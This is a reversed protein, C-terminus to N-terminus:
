ARNFPGRHQAIRNIDARSEIGFRTAFEGVTLHEICIDVVAKGFKRGVQMFVEAGWMQRAIAHGRGSLLQQEPAAAFLAAVQEEKALRKALAKSTREADRAAVRAATASARKAKAIRRATFIARHKARIGNRYAVHDPTDIADFDFTPIPGCSWEWQEVGKLAAVNAARDSNFVSASYAADLISTHVSIHVCFSKKGAIKREEANLVATAVFEGRETFRHEPPQAVNLYATTNGKRFTEGDKKVSLPFGNLDRGNKVKNYVSM